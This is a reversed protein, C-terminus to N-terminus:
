SSSTAGRRTMQSITQGVDETTAASTQLRFKILQKAMAKFSVMSLDSIGKIGAAELTDFGTLTFEIRGRCEELTLKVYTRKKTDRRVKVKHQVNTQVKGTRTGRYIQANLYLDNGLGAKLIRNRVEPQDLQSDSYNEGSKKAFLHRTVEKGALDTYTQRADSKKPKIMTDDLLAQHSAWHPRRLLAVIKERGVLMEEPTQAGKPYFDVALEMMFTRV